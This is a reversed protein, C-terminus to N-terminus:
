YYYYYNCSVNSSWSNKRKVLVRIIETLIDKLQASIGPTLTLRYNLAAASVLLHTSLIWPLAETFVRSQRYQCVSPCVSPCSNIVHWTCRTGSETFTNSIVPFLQGKGDIEVSRFWARLVDSGSPALLCPWPADGGLFLRLQIIMLFTGFIQNQFPLIRAKYQCGM